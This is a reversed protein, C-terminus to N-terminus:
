QEIGAANLAAPRDRLCVGEIWPVVCILGVALAAPGPPLLVDGDVVVIELRVGDEIACTGTEQTYLQLDVAGSLVAGGGPLQQLKCVAGGLVDVDLMVAGQIIPQLDDCVRHGKGVMFRLHWPARQEGGGAGHTVGAVLGPGAPKVDMHAPLGETFRLFPLIRDDCADEIETFLEPILQQFEAPAGRPLQLPPCGPVPVLLLWSVTQLM